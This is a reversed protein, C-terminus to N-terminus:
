GVIKVGKAGGERVNLLVEPARFRFHRCSRSNPIAINNHKNHNKNNNSNRRMNMKNLKYLCKYTFLKPIGGVRQLGFFARGFSTLSPKVGPDHFALERSFCFFCPEGFMEPVQIYPKRLPFGGGSYGKKPNLFGELNLYRFNKCLRTRNVQCDFVIPYVSYGVKSFFVLSWWGMQFIHEDFQLMEGLLSSFWLFLYFWWRSNWAIKLLELVISGLTQGLSDPLNRMNRDEIRSGIYIWQNWQFWSYEEIPAIIYLQNGGEAKVPIPKFMKFLGNQDRTDRKFLLTEWRM